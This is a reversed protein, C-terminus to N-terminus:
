SLGGEKLADIPDVYRKKKLKFYVGVLFNFAFWKYKSFVVRFAVGEVLTAGFREKFRQIGEYKSGEDVKLRAGVFDYMKVGKDRLLRMAQYQLLNLAGTVPVSVSGGYLYYGVNKGYPIVAVGQLVDEAYAGLYFVNSPLRSKLEALFEHSPFYPLGQRQLTDKICEYVLGVDDIERVVVGDRISRNIVNRHKSHFQKLLADDDRSIDLVYSGWPCFVSEDPHAEFVVNSQAKGIFDCVSAKRVSEIAANLFDLQSVRASVDGFREIPSSTFILRRFIFIKDIYFPLIYSDSVLWGYTSSCARLYEMMSFVNNALEDKFSSCDVFLEVKV